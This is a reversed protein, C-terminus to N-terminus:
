PAKSHLYQRIGGKVASMITLHTLCNLPLHFLPRHKIMRQQILFFIFDICRQIRIDLLMSWRMCLSICAQQMMKGHATHPLVHKDHLLQLGPMHIRYHQLLQTPIHVFLVHACPIATSHFGQHVIHYLIRFLSIRFTFTDISEYQM